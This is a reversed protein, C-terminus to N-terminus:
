SSKSARDNDPKRKRSNTSDEGGQDASKSKGVLCPLLELWENYDIKKDENKDCSQIMRDIEDQNLQFGMSWTAKKVDMVDLYGSGSTDLADFTTHLLQAMETGQEWSGVMCAFDIYTLGGRRGTDFKDICTKVQQETHTIGMRQLIKSLGRPTIWKSGSTEEDEVKLLHLFVDRFAQMQAMTSYGSSGQRMHVMWNTTAILALLAGQPEVGEIYTKAFREADKNRDEVGYIFASMLQCDCIEVFHGDPDSLFIQQIFKGGEPVINKKFQYKSKKLKEETAAFDHSELALHNVNGTPLGIKHMGEYKAHEKDQAQILHLQINGMDLWYGPSPFNPRNLKPFGLLGNYFKFSAHVDACIRTVHNVRRIHGLLTDQKKSNEMIKNDFGKGHRIVSPTARLDPPGPVEETKGGGSEGGRADILAHLRALEAEVTAPHTNALDDLYPTTM